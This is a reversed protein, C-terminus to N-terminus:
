QGRTDQLRAIELLAFRLDLEGEEASTTVNERHFAFVGENREMLPALADLLHANAAERLSAPTLLKRAILQHVVAVDDNRDVRSLAAVIATQDLQPLAGLSNAFPPKGPMVVRVLSGNRVYLNARIDPFQLEIRGTTRNNQVLELVQWMSFEGLNGGFGDSRSGVKSRMGAIADVVQKRLLPDKPQLTAAKILTDLADQSRGLQELTRALGLHTEVRSPELELARTFAGQAQPWQGGAELVLGLDHHAHASSPELTLARKIAREAHGLQGAERLVTALNLCPTAANPEQRMARSLVEIAEDHRRLAALALGYGTLAQADTPALAAVEQWATCCAEASGQEGLIRARLLHADLQTEDRRLVESVDDLAAQHDGAAALGVARLLRLPVHAIVAESDAPLLEVAQRSHGAEILFHAVREQDTAAIAPDGAVPRLTEFTLEPDGLEAFSSALHGRLEPDQTMSLAHLLAAAAATKEFPSRGASRLLEAGLRWWAWPDDVRREADRQLAQLDM